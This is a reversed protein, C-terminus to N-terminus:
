IIAPDKEKAVKQNVVPLVCQVFVAQSFTDM